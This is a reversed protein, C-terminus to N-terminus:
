RRHVRVAALAGRHVLHAREALQFEGDGPDLIQGSAAQQMPLGHGSHSPQPGTDHLRILSRSEGARATVTAPKATNTRSLTAPRITVAFKMPSTMPSSEIPSVWARHLSPLRSANPVVSKPTPSRAAAAAEFQGNSSRPTKASPIPAPPRTTSM